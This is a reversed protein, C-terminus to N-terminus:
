NIIICCLSFVSWTKEREAASQKVKESKVLEHKKLTQNYVALHLLMQINNNNNYNNNNHGDLLHYIFLYCTWYKSNNLETKTEVM